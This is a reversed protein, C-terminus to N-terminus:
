PFLSSSICYCTSDLLTNSYTRFTYSYTVGNMTAPRCSLIITLTPKTAHGDKNVYWGHLGFYFCSNTIQGPVSMYMHTCLWDDSSPHQLLRCFLLHCSSTISYQRMVLVISDLRKLRRVWSCLVSGWHFWFRWFFMAWAVTPNGFLSECPAPLKFSQQRISFHLMQVWPEVTGTQFMTGTQTLAAKMM